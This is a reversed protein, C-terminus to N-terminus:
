PIDRKKSGSPDEVAKHVYGAYGWISKKKRKWSTWIGCFGPMYIYVDIYLIFDVLHLYYVLGM